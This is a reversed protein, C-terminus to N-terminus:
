YLGGISIYTNHWLIVYLCLDHIHTHMNLGHVLFLKALFWHCVHFALVIFRPRKPNSFHNTRWVSFNM